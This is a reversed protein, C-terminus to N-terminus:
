VEARDVDREDVTEGGRRRVALPHDERGVAVEAPAPPERRARDPGRTGAGLELAEREPEAALRTQRLGAAAALGVLGPQAHVGVGGLSHASDSARRPLRGGWM